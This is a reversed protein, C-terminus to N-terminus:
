LVKVSGGRRRTRRLRIYNRLNPAIRFGEPKEERLATAWGMGEYYRGYGEFTSALDERGLRRALLACAAVRSAMSAGYKPVFVLGGDALDDVEHALALFLMDEDGSRVETAALREPEGMDFSFADYRSVLLEARAGIHGELWRRHAASQGGSRGDPYEGTDYAAHFMAALIHDVDGGFHAVSSAAGIAHCIFPRGTKRYRGNFMLCVVRYARQIRGIEEIAFGAEHLQVFLATNTQSPSFLGERTLTM